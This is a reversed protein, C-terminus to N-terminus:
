TSGGYSSEEGIVFLVSMLKGVGLATLDASVLRLDVLYAGDALLHDLYDALLDDTAIEVEGPDGEGDLGHDGPRSEDVGGNGAAHIGVEHLSCNLALVGQLSHFM